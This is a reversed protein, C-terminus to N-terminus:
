EWVPQWALIRTKSLYTISIDDFVPTDLMYHKSPDVHTGGAFPDVLRDVPYLFQLRYRLESSRVRTPNTITGIANHQDPDGFSALVVEDGNEPVGDPDRLLHVKLGKTAHSQGGYQAPTPRAVSTYSKVRGSLDNGM